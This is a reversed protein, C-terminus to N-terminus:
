GTTVLAIGDALDADVTCIVYDSTDNYWQIPWVGSVWTESATVTVTKVDVAESDVTPQIAFTVVLDGADNKIVIVTDGDNTFRFGGVNTVAQYALEAGTRNATQVTLTELAM